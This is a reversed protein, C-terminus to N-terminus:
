SSEYSALADLLGELGYREVLYDLLLEPNNEIVEVMTKFTGQWGSKQDLADGLTGFLAFGAEGFHEKWRAHVEAKTHQEIQTRDAARGVLWVMYIALVAVVFTGVGLGILYNM